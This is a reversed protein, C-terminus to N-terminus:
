TFQPDEFNGSVHLVFVLKDEKLADRNAVTPSSVFHIATGYTPDNRAATPLNTSCVASENKATPLKSACVPQEPLLDVSECTEKLPEAKAVTQPETVPVIFEPATKAATLPMEPIVKEPTIQPLIAAQSDRSELVRVDTTQKERDAWCPPPLEAYEETESIEPRKSNQVALTLGVTVLLVALSVGVYVPWYAWASGTAVARRTRKKPTM